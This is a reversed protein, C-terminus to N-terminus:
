EVAVGPLGAAEAAEAQEADAVVRTEVAWNGEPNVQGKWGMLRQFM